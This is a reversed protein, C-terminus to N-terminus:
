LNFSQITLYKIDKYSWEVHIDWRGDVLVKNPIHLTSNSLSLPIERDLSQNSPRYLYVIGQIDKHEFEKPFKIFIGEALKEIFLNNKLSKSNTLKDIKEQYKLEEKYYDETVLDYEYTSDASTKIVFYLILSIFLVFAVVIGTGWNFKKM